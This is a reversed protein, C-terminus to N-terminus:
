KRMGPRRYGPRRADLDPIIWPLRRGTLLTCRQLELAVPLATLFDVLHATAQWKGDPRVERVAADRLERTLVAAHQDLLHGVDAGTTRSL